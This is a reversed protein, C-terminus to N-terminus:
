DDDSLQLGIRRLDHRTLPDLDSTQAAVRRRCEPHRWVGLSLPVPKDCVLCMRPRPPSAQPGAPAAAYWSVIDAHSLQAALQIPQLLSSWYHYFWTFHPLGNAPTCERGRPACGSHADMWLRLQVLASIATIPSPM